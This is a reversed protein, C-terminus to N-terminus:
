LGPGGQLPGPANFHVRRTQYVVVKLDNIDVFYIENDVKNERTGCTKLGATQEWPKLGPGGASVRSVKTFTGAARYLIRM